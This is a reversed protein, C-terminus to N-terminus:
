ALFSVRRHQDLLSWLRAIDVPKTLREYGKDAIERLLEPITTATWIAAPVSRGVTKCITAIAQPGTENPLNYDAIIFSLNNAYVDNDTLAAAVEDATEAAVVSSGWTTLLAQLNERVPVDDEVVAVVMGVLTNLHSRFEAAPVLSEAM